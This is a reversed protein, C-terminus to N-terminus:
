QIHIIDTRLAVIDVGTNRPAVGTVALYIEFVFLFCLAECYYGRPEPECARENTASLQLRTYFCVFRNKFQKREM